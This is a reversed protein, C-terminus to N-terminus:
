NVKRTTMAVTVRSGPIATELCGTLRDIVPQVDAVTRQPAFELFLEIFVQSGSRRTRIGHLQEYDDLFHALERLIIIQSEEELAGDLLDRVSSSFIGLASLLIFVAIVLSALPDIYLAWAVGHLAMSLALALLIFANAVARSLLLRAQSAMLPSSEMRAVRRTRWYLVGNIVGYVLQAVVSIWVGIGSIHSPHLVNRIASFVIVLLCTIMLMGVGLSSLHELKGVGYQYQHDAGRRVRQVTYWALGVAVFELTTKLFDALIVSSRAAMFAAMTVAMDMAGSILAAKVSGERGGAESSHTHM